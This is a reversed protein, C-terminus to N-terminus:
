EVGGLRTVTGQEPFSAVRDENGLHRQWWLPEVHIDMRGLRLHAKAIRAAHAIQDCPRQALCELRRTMPRRRGAAHPRNRDAVVWTACGM